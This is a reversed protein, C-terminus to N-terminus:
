NSPPFKCPGRCIDMSARRDEIWERAVTPRTAFEDKSIDIGDTHDCPPEGHFQADLDKAYYVSGFKKFSISIWAKQCAALAKVAAFRDKIQMNPWMQELEVGPAKEM